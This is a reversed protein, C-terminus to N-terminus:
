HNLENLRNELVHAVGSCKDSHPASPFSRLMKEVLTATVTISGGHGPVIVDASAIIAAVSKWTQIIEEQTYRNPWFYQWALLWEKNLIADGTICVTKGSSSQFFLSQLKISHGPSSSIHIGSSLVNNTPDFKKFSPKIIEKPFRVIHDDHPHTIFVYGIDAFTMGLEKLIAISHQYGESTFCPDTIITNEISPSFKEPWLITSTSRHEVFPILKGNPKANISGPQLIAYNFRNMTKFDMCKSSRVIDYGSTSYLLFM